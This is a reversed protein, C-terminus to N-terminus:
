RALADILRLPAHLQRLVDLPVPLAEACYAEAHALGDPQIILAHEKADPWLLFHMWRDKAFIDLCEKPMLPDLVARSTYLNQLPRYLIFSTEDGPYRGLKPKDPRMERPLLTYPDLAEGTKLDFLLVFQANDPHPGGCSFDSSQWISLFEPGNMTVNSWAAFDSNPEALCEQRDLLINEEEQKLAQNIKVAVPDSGAIRPLSALDPALPAPFMLLPPLRDARLPLGIMMIFLAAGFRMM